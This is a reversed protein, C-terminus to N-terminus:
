GEVRGEAATERAWGGVVAQAWAARARVVAEREAVVTAEGVRTEVRAAAERAAVLEAAVLVGEVAALEAAEAVVGTAEARSVVERVAVVLEVM